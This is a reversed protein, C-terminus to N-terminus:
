FEEDPWFMKRFSERMDVDQSLDGLENRPVHSEEEASFSYM